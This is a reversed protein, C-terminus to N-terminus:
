FWFGIGMNFIKQDNGSSEPRIWQMDAKWVVGPALTYGIGAFFESVNYDDNKEIGSTKHHLDYKEYRLFPTIKQGSNNININYASELYWGLTGKGLDSGTFANYAGTNGIKNYILQGRSRFNGKSLRYDVGIMNINVRSSDAQDQAYEDSTDLNDFLTSQTQGLYTSLGLQLGPIGFYNVRASLNPTSIFSSAGKQRGSRIGSGGGLVGEGDYSNFGNMIYAQYNISAGTLTGTLGAGIERWTTPVVKSDITPREVGNFTTPEHFENIIGMPVLVLGGVLNLGPVLRHEIFAQEIYVETVHEYEIETVMSTKPSFSYGFLMVLRHVDLKGNQRLGSNLPQNYDIQGYGGIVLNQEQLQELLNGAANASSETQASATQVSFAMLIAMISLQFQKM